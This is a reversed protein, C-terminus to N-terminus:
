DLTSKAAACKFVVDPGLGDTLSAMASIADEDTPGIVADAGLSRAAERRAPAPESVFANGVGAARAVQVCMLGIPEAGLVAVSDGMKLDSIGIAHVAIACLECIAAAEDSVGDPIAM